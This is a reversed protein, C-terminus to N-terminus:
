LSRQERGLPDQVGMEKEATGMLYGTQTTRKKAARAAALQWCGTQLAAALVAFLLFIATRKM